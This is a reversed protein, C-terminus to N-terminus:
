DTVTYYRRLIDDAASYFAPVQEDTLKPVTRIGYEDLLDDFQECCEDSDGASIHTAIQRLKERLEKVSGTAPAPKSRPKEESEDALDDQPEPAKKKAEPKTDIVSEGEVPVEPGAKGRGMLKKLEETPAAPETMLKAVQEASGGVVETGTDNHIVVGPKGSNVAILEHAVVFRELLKLFQELM